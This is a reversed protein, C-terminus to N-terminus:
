DEEPSFAGTSVVGAGISPRGFRADLIAEFAHLDSLVSEAGAARLARDSDNGTLVAVAFAGAERAARMDAETDGVYMAAGLSRLAHAKESGYVHAVLVEARLGVERLCIEASLRQKATVIASSGGRARVAHLADAAGPLARTGEAALARYHVRYREALRPVDEAPYWLALEDELKPGLRAGIAQVDLATGTEAALAEFAALIGARSDILTLDLDFGVVFPTM